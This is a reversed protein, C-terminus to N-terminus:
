QQLGAHPDAHHPQVIASRLYASFDAPFYTLSEVHSEPFNPFVCHDEFLSILSIILFYVALPSGGLLLLKLIQRESNTTEIKM